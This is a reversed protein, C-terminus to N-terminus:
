DLEVHQAIITENLFISASASFKEVSETTFYKITSNKTCLLDMESHRELYDALSNAVLEGQSVVKIHKSLYTKIKNELIPYHTCGLMVVDIKPDSKILNEINNKIFYDAGFSLHENNEILPVWMSCAESAVFIDNHLKKIELPYSNSQVTGNTALLGIHKTQTLEGVAEVTPRIVGLVRKHSGIAPLDKQQITKLAKASATNCALIVLNCGMDFLKLVCELTYKYVVEYSRTGYPTRANDGLYIYDYEPLKNRIKDLITLGGYGSDFIGIAGSKKYLPTLNSNDKFNLEANM